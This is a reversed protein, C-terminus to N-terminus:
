SDKTESRSEDTTKDDTDDEIDSMDSMQSDNNDSSYNSESESENESSFVEADSSLDEPLEEGDIYNSIKGDKLIRNVLKIKKINDLKSKLKLDIKKLTGNFKKHFMTPNLDLNVMESATQGSVHSENDIDFTSLEQYVEWDISELQDQLHKINKENGKVKIFVLWSEFHKGSTEMFVCYADDDTNDLSKTM